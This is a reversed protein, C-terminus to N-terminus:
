LILKQVIIGNDNHILEHSNITKDRFNDSYIINKKISREISNITHYKYNFPLELVEILNDDLEYRNWRDTKYLM